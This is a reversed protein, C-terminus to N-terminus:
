NQERPRVYLNWFYAKDILFDLFEPCEESITDALQRFTTFEKKRVWKFMKCYCSEIGDKVTLVSNYDYGGFTMVDQPDYIAKKKPDEDLHCFYRLMGKKDFPVEYHSINLKECIEKVQNKSKAGSFIIMNHYHPKKIEGTEENYDSDHLPSRVGILALKSIKDYIDGMSEPYTIFCFQYIRNEKTQTEKTM